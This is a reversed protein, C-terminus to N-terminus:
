ELSNGCFVTVAAAPPIFVGVGKIVEKKLPQEFDCKCFQVLNIVWTVIFFLWILMTTCGVGITPNKM